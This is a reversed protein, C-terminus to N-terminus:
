DETKLKKLGKVVDLIRFMATQTEQEPIENMGLRSALLCQALMKSCEALYPIFGIFRSVNDSNIFNLSLAADVVQGEELKSAEKTLDVRLSRM